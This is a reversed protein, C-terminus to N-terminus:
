VGARSEREAGSGLSNLAAADNASVRPEATLWQFVALAADGCAQARAGVSRGLAIRTSDTRHRVFWVWASGSKSRPCREVVIEFDEFGTGM